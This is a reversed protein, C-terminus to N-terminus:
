FAQLVACRMVVMSSVANIWVGETSCCVILLPVCNGTCVSTQEQGPRSDVAIFYNSCVLSERTNEGYSCALFVLGACASM